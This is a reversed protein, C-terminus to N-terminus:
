RLPSRELAEDRAAQRIPLGWAWRAASPCPKRRRHPQREWYRSIPTFAMYRHSLMEPTALEAPTAAPPSRLTARYYGETWEKCARAKDVDLRTGGAGVRESFFSTRISLQQGVVLVRPRGYPRQQISQHNGAMLCKLSAFKLWWSSLVLLM